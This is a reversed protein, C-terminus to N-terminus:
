NEAYKGRRMNVEECFLFGLVFGDTFAQHVEECYAMGRNNMIESYTTKEEDSLNRMFVEELDNALKSKEKYHPHEPQLDESPTINGLYFQRLISFM